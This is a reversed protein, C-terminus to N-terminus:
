VCVCVCVRSLAEFALRVQLRGCVFVGIMWIVFCWVVIAMMVSGSVLTSEATSPREVDGGLSCLVRLCLEAAAAPTIFM